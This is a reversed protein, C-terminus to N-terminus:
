APPVFSQRIRKFLAAYLPDDSATSGVLFSHLDPDPLGLIDEMGDREASSLSSFFREVFSELVADLERMGRRCRWRLRALRVADEDAKVPVSM